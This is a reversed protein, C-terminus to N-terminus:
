RLEDRLEAQVIAEVAVVASDPTQHLFICECKSNNWAREPVYFCLKRALLRVNRYEIDLRCSEHRM